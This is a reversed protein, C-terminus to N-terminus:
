GDNNDSTIDSALKSAIEAAKQAEESEIKEGEVRADIIDSVLKQEMSSEAIKEQSRIRELEIADRSQSKQADIQADLMDAQAKRQVEAEKIDLERMKAQVLPDQMQEQIRQAEAERQHKQLLREAAEAVM